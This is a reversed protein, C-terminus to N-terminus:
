PPLLARRAAESASFHVLHRPSLPPSGSRPRGSRPPWRGGTRPTLRQPDRWASLPQALRRALRETPLRAPLRAPLRTTLRGTALQQAGTPATTAVATTGATATAATTATRTAAATATATSPATGTETMTTSTGPQSGARGLNGVMTPPRRPRAPVRPPRPSRPPSRPPSRNRGPHPSPLLRRTRSRSPRPTRPRDSQRVRPPGPPLALQRLPEHRVVTPAHGILPRGRGVTQRPTRRPPGPGRPSSWLTRPSWRPSSPPGSPHRAGPPRWM